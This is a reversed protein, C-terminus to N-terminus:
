GGKSSRLGSSRIAAAGRSIVGALEKGEKTKSMITLDKETLGDMFESLLEGKYKEIEAVMKKGKEGAKNPDKFVNAIEDIANKTLVVVSADYLEEDTIKDAPIKSDAAKLIEDVKKKERSDKALQRAQEAIKKEEEPGIGDLRYPTGKLFETAKRVDAMTKAKGIAVVFKTPANLISVYERAEADKTDLLKKQDAPNVVKSMDFSELSKELSKTLDDQAKKFVKEIDSSAKEEKLLSRIGSVGETTTSRVGFIKNLATEVQGSLNTFQAQTYNSKKGYMSDYAAQQIGTDTDEPEGKASRGPMEFNMGAEALFQVIDKTVQPGKDYTQALLYPGPAALFAVMHFDKGMRDQVNKLAGAYEGAIKDKDVKYRNRAKEIEEGNVAVAVDYVYVAASLVDKIAVKTVEWVDKISDFIDYLDQASMYVGYNERLLERRVYQRLKAETM